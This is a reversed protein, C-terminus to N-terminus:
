RPVEKTHRCLTLFNEVLRLGPATLVSQPHFQVGCWPRDRHALGMIEGEPTWAVIELVAPLTAREVVWAHYRAARFPVELGAFVGRARHLIPSTTGHAVRAAPVLRAGLIEALREHGRGIALLPVHPDTAGLLDAIACRGSGVPPAGSLVIGEAPRGPPPSALSEIRATALAAGLTRLGYELAGTLPDGGDLLLIM